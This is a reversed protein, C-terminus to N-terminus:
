PIELDQVQNYSSFLYKARNVDMVEYRTLNEPKEGHEILARDVEGWISVMFDRDNVEVETILHEDVAVYITFLIPKVNLYREAVYQEVLQEGNEQM